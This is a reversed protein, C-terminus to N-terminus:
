TVTAPPLAPEIDMLLRNKFEARGFNTRPATRRGDRTNSAVQQCPRYINWDPLAFVSGTRGLVRRSCSHLLKTAPTGSHAPAGGLAVNPQRRSAFM